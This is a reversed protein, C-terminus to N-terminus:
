KRHAKKTSPQPLPLRLQGSAILELQEDCENLRSYLNRVEQYDEVESTAFCMGRLFRMMEGHPLTRAHRLSESVFLIEETRM